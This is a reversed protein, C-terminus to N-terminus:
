SPRVPLSTPRSRIGATGPPGRVYPLAVPAATRATDHAPLARPMGHWPVPLHPLSPTVAGPGPPLLSSRASYPQEAATRGPGDQRTRTSDARLLRTLHRSPAAADPASVSVPPAAGVVPAPATFAGGGFLALLVLLLVAPVASARRARM